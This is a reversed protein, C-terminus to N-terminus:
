EDLPGPNWPFILQLCAVATRILEVLSNNVSSKITKSEQQPCLAFHPLISDIGLQQSGFVWMLLMQKEIVLWNVDM